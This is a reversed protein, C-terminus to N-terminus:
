CESLRPLLVQEIINIPLRIGRSYQLYTMKPLDKALSLWSLMEIIETDSLIGM